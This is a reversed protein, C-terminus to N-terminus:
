GRPRASPQPSSGTPRNLWHYPDERLKQTLPRWWDAHAQYWAVTERLGDEFAMRPKWGLAQVKEDKMAYRRDHGPRDAVSQLLSAPAGLPLLIRQAVDRNVHETGSAINYVDGAQGRELIVALAECLDGVFLWGRQQQGDGYIPIPRRELAHTICVPMFKEPFQWPGYINTPRAVIVPLEYTAHFSQVLVDGATKSAAYPSHPCLPAREDVAGELVPGYVEDTSIHLFRTVGAARAAQLLVYTGEVNTRLFPVANTISRDVHTEAAFHVVAHCGQATRGVAEAETIDGQM